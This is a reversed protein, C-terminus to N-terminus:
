AAEITVITMVECIIRRAGAENIGARSLGAIM